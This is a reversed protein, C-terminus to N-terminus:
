EGFKFNFLSIEDSYISSILDRTTNDYFETYHKEKNGLNRKPLSNDKLNIIKAVKAFDSELNEYRGIFDLPIKNKHDILWYLQSNLAWNNKRIKLFESLTCNDKICLTRKHVPDKMVNNYWSVVRSWPNRVFAFKFFNQYEHLSVGNRRKLYNKSRKLFFIIFNKTIINGDKIYLRLPEIERITRHDQSGRTPNKFLGLKEEISTGAVKPIHIFICRYKKSIM